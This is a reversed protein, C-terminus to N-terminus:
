HNTHILKTLTQNIKRCEHLDRHTQDQEPWVISQYPEYVQSYKLIECYKVIMFLNVFFLFFFVYFFGYYM